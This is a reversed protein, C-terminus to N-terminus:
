QEKRLMNLAFYGILLIVAGMVVWLWVSNTILPEASAKIIGATRLNEKGYNLINMSSPIKDKFHILDYVPAETNEKGYSLYLGSSYPLKTILATREGYAKIEDITIPENDFNIVEIKLKNSQLNHISFINNEDSAIIGSSIREWAEKDGNPTKYIGSSRFINVNRHFDKGTSSKLIIHNIFYNDQLDVILESTKNKRNETQKKNKVPLEDFNGKIIKKEFAYANTITIKDSADDDFKIRFYSFEASPFNITTSRFDNENNVFGTIRLHEKITHWEKNDNSGEIKLIKDFNNQLVDFTIKNIVKKIKMKLTVYSCCKLNTVDNILDFSVPFEETKDGQWELLYPMESTDNASINYLRIDRLASKSHAIIEPALSITYFDEKPTDDLKRFYSYSDM